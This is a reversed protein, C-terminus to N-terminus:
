EGCMFFLIIGAKSTLIPNRKISARQILAKGIRLMDCPGIRGVIKM